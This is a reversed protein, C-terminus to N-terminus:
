QVGSRREGSTTWQVNLSKRHTSPKEPSWEFVAKNNYLEIFELQEGDATPNYMVESVVLGLGPRAACLTVVCIM